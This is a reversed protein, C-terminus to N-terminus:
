QRARPSTSAATAAPAASDSSSAQRAWLLRLRALEADYLRNLRDIEAQQTGLMSRQADAAAENLEIQQALKAPLPKGQYFEIEGDLAKRETAIQAARTEAARIANRAPALADERFRDHAAKDPYRSLLQRDRRQDRAHAERAQAERAERADRAAQEDLSLSPGITSRQVGDPGLVRQERGACEAIPRDSTLTRGSADTCTYINRTPASEAARSQASANFGFVASASLVLM